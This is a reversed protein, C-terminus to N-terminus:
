PEFDLPVTTYDTSFHELGDAKFARDWNFGEDGAQIRFVDPNRIRDAHAQLFTPDLHHFFLAIVNGHTSIGITEGRNDIAIRKVARIFRAQAQHSSECEPLAYHFDTWSKEWHVDFDPILAKAIVREELEQVQKVPLGNMEVFPKITELCRLYPSSYMRTFDYERLVDPLRQAQMRGVPSLPWKSYHERVSPASQAHRIFYLTTNM